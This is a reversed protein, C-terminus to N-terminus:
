STHYTLPQVLGDLWTMGWRRGIDDFASSFDDSEEDKDDTILVPLAPVRDTWLHM